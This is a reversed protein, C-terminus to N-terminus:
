TIERGGVMRRIKTIVAVIAGTMDITCQSGIDRIQIPIRRPELAIVCASHKMREFSATARMWSATSHKAFNPSSTDSSARRPLTLREICHRHNQCKNSRLECQGCQVGGSRRVRRKAQVFIEEKLAIVIIGTLSLSLLTFLIHFSSEGALEIILYSYVLPM